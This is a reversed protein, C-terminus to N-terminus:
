QLQHAYSYSHFLDTSCRRRFSRARSDSLQAPLRNMLRTLFISISAKILVSNISTTPILRSSAICSISTSSSSTTQVNANFRVMFRECLANARPAKPPTKIAKIGSAKLLGKFKSGFKGDNDHILTNRGNEGLPPKEFKSRRGSTRPIPPSPRICLREPSMNWSWLSMSRNSSSPISPPSIVHGSKTPM